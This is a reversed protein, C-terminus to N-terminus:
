GLGANYDEIAKNLAIAQASDGVVRLLPKPKVESALGLDDADPEVVTANPDVPEPAVIASAAALAEDLGPYTGNEVLLNQVGKALADIPVLGSDAWVKATDATQKDLASREKEDMEFLPAFDYWPYDKVGSSPLLVADIRDLAPRLTMEQKTGISSVYDREDGAGTANMGTASTGLLRTYPIDAAGAVTQLFAAMLEPMGTWTVQRTEWTEADKGGEGSDLVIARHISKGFKAADLRKSLQADGGPQSLREMLGPIGIVDYTSEDILSAFSNQASDANRIADGVAQYIPDGWFAAQWDTTIGRMVHAGKFAVIRSPHIRVGTSASTTTIEFWAPGGFLPDAPDTVEDGLLLQWRSFVALYSLGGPRIRAVDLPEAPNDGTVGIFIAGGGLRGLILAEGVCDRLKVRKEEAEIKGITESDTKWDRWERTMDQAPMDVIKRALWSSRYSAEIQQQDVFVNSYHAHVRKDATTGAGSMVNTLSDTFKRLLGM